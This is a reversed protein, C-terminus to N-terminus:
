ADDELVDLTLALSKQESVKHGKAACIRIMAKAKNM